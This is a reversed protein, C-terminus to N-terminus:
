QSTADSTSPFHRQAPIRVPPIGRLARLAELQTVCINEFAPPYRQLRLNLRGLPSLIIFYHSGKYTPNLWRKYITELLRFKWVDFVFSGAVECPYVLSLCYVVVEGLGEKTLLPITISSGFFIAQRSLPM